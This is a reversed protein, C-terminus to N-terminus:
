MNLTLLSDTGRQGKARLPKRVGTASHCQGSCVGDRATSDCIVADCHVYIQQSLFAVTLFTELSNRRGRGRYISPPTSQLCWRKLCLLYEVQDKLVEKDKVFSFVKISFRKVHSPIM